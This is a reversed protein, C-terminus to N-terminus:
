LHIGSTFDKIPLFRVQTQRKPDKTVNGNKDLYELGYIVTRHQRLKLKSM